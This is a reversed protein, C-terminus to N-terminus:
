FLAWDFGHVHCVYEAWRNFAASHEGRGSCGSHSEHLHIMEHAVTMLLSLSHSITRRSIFICHREGDFTHWGRLTPDRAVKFIVDESAPLNWVCFPETVQLYDYARAIIEPSLILGSRRRM